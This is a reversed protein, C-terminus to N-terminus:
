IIQINEDHNNVWDGLKKNRYKNEQDQLRDAVNRDRQAYLAKLAFDKAEESIVPHMSPYWKNVEFEQIVDELTIKNVGEDNSFGQIDCDDDMMDLKDAYDM